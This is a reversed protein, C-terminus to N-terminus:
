FAIVCEGGAEGVFGRSTLSVMNSVAPPIQVAVSYDPFCEPSLASFNRTSQKLSRTQPLM